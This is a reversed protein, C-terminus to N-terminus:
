RELGCAWGTRLISTSGLRSFANKKLELASATIALCGRGEKDGGEGGAEEDGDVEVWGDAGDGALEVAFGPLM